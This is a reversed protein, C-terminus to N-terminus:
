GPRHAEVFQPIIGGSDPDVCVYMRRMSGPSTPDSAFDTIWFCVLQDGRYPDLELAPEDLPYARAAEDERQLRERLRREAEEQDAQWRYRQREEELEGWLLQELYWAQVLEEASASREEGELEEEGPLLILTRRRAAQKSWHLMDRKSPKRTGGRGLKNGGARRFREFLAQMVGAPLGRLAALTGLMTVGAGVLPGLFEPKLALEGTRGPGIQLLEARFLLRLLQSRSLGLSAALSARASPLSGAKAFSMPDGLGLTQLKGALGKGVAAKMLAARQSPNLDTM